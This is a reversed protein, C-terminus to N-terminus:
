AREVVLVPDEDLFPTEVVRLMRDAGLPITDGAAGAAAQVTIWRAKSGDQPSEVSSTALWTPSVVLQTLFRSM